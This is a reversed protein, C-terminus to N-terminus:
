VFGRFTSIRESFFINKLNLIENDDDMIEDIEVKESSDIEVSTFKSSKAINFNNVDLSSEINNDITCDTDIKCSQFEGENNM